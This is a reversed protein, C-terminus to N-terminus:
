HNAVLSQESSQAAVAAKLAERDIGMAALARPAIGQEMTAIVEIVHLGMLPNARKANMEHLKQMLAQGSPTTKYLGANPKVAEAKGMNIDLAEVDIGVNSLADIHQQSIAENIKEPDIGLREFVKKATGDPLDLAALLFHEAGPQEEGNGNAHAEAGLCLQSITKMDRGKQKVRKIFSFIM